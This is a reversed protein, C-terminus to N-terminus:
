HNTSNKTFLNADKDLVEAFYTLAQRKTSGAEALLVALTRAVVLVAEELELDSEALSVGIEIAKSKMKAGREENIDM